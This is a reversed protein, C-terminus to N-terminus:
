STQLLTGEYIYTYICVYCVYRHWRNFNALTLTNRVIYSLVLVFLCHTFVFLCIFSLCLVREWVFLLSPTQHQCGFRSTTPVEVQFTSLQLSWNQEAQIRSTRNNYSTKNLVYAPHGTVTVPKM